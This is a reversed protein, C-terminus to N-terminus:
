AIKWAEPSSTKRNYDHRPVPVPEPKRGPKGARIIPELAYRLADMLHNHRDLLVPLIDGTLKDTKYSWLRAEEAAHRCRPHIVISEYSRLHEM